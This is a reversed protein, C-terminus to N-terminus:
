RRLGGPLDGVVHRVAGGRDARPRHRPDARDDDRQRRLAVEYVHDPEVGGEACVEAALERLTAAAAEQLRPLTEPDLMTASIRTIVDGGYPQQKNLM